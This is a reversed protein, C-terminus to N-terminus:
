SGKGVAVGFGWRWGRIGWGELVRQIRCVDLITQFEMWGMHESAGCKLGEPDRGMGFKMCRRGMVPGRFGKVM